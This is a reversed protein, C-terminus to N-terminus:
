SKKSYKPYFFVGPYGKFVGKLYDEENVTVVTFKSKVDLLIDVIRSLNTRPTRGSFYNRIIDDLMRSIAESIEERELVWYVVKGFKKM